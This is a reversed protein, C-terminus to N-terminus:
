DKTPRFSAWVEGALVAGAAFGLLFKPSFCFWVLGLVILIEIVRRSIM